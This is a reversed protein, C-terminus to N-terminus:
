RKRIDLPGNRTVVRVKPGGGGLTTTIQKTIRGQLTIPFDISMPGNTTGTELEASYDRPIYITAPGNVAEVDLGEGDWRSGTLSVEVPGNQARAVVRGSVGALTMPGNRVELDLRGGVGEVELPGNHAELRLDTRKPVGIVFSVTWWERRGVSTPGDATVRAGDMRIRVDGAIERARAESAAVAHVEARVVISDGDWGHVYVGGNRHADVVLSGTSRTREVRVECHRHREEDDGRWRRECDSMFDRDSRQAGAGSTLSLGAALLVFWVISRM